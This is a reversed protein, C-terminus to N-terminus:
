IFEVTCANQIPGAKLFCRTSISKKGGCPYLFTNEDERCNGASLGMKYPVEFGCVM